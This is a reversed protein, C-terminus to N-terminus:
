LRQNKKQTGAELRADQAPKLRFHVLSSLSLLSMWTPFGPQSELSVFLAIKSEKRLQKHSVVEVLAPFSSLFSQMM